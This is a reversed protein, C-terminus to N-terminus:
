YFMFEELGKQIKVNELNGNVYYSISDNNVTGSIHIWQNAIISQNYTYFVM